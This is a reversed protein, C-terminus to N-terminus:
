ITWEICWAPIYNFNIKHNSNLKLKLIPWNNIIKNILDDGKLSIAKILEGDVIYQFVIACGDIKKNM